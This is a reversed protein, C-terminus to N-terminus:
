ILNPDYEPLHNVFNIGTSNSDLESFLPSSDNSSPKCASFQLIVVSLLSFFIFNTTLINKKFYDKTESLSM